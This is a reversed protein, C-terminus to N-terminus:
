MTAAPITRYTSIVSSKSSGLAKAIANWSLGEDDRLRVVEAERETLKFM